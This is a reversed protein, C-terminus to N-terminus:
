FARGRKHQRVSSGSSLQQSTQEPVVSPPPGLQQLHWAAQLDVTLQLQCALFVEALITMQYMREFVPPGTREDFAILTLYISLSGTLSSKPCMISPTRCAMSAPARSARSTPSHLAHDASSRPATALSSAQGGVTRSRATGCCTMTCTNLFRPWLADQWCTILWCAFHAVLSKKAQICAAVLSGFAIRLRSM